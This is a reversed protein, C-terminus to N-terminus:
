TIFLCQLWGHNSWQQRCCFCWEQLVVAIVVISNYTRVQEQKILLLQLVSAVNMSTRENSMLHTYKVNTDQETLSISM